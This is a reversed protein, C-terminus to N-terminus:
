PLSSYSKASYGGKMVKLPSIPVYVMRSLDFKIKGGNFLHFADVKVRHQQMIDKSVIRIAMELGVVELKGNSLYDEVFWKENIFVDEKENLDKKFALCGVRKEANYALRLPPSIQHAFREKLNVVRFHNLRDKDDSRFATASELLQKKDNLRIGLAKGHLWDLYEKRFELRIPKVAGLEAGGWLSNVIHNSANYTKPEEVVEAGWCYSVSLFGSVLVLKKFDLGFGM